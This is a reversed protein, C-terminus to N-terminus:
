GRGWAVEIAHRIAHFCVKLHKTFTAFAIFKTSEL